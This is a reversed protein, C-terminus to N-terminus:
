PKIIKGNCSLIHGNKEEFEKAIINILEKRNIVKRKCSPNNCKRVRKSRYKGCYPCLVLGEDIRLPGTFQLEYNQPSNDLQVYSTCHQPDEKTRITFYQVRNIDLEIINKHRRLCGM